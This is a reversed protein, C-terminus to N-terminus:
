VFVFGLVRNVIVIQLISEERMNKLYNNGDYICSSMM